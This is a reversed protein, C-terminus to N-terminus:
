GGRRRRQIIKLGSGPGGTRAAMRCPDGRSVPALITARTAQRLKRTLVRVDHGEEAYTEALAVGLFGTGGAIVIEYPTNSTRRPHPTQM